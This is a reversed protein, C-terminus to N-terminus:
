VSEQRLFRILSSDTMSCRIPSPQVSLSFPAPCWRILRTQEFAILATIVQPLALGSAQSLADATSFHRARILRYVDRLTDDTLNLASVLSSLERNPSLALLEAHPCFARIADAQGRWLEGDALIVTTWQDKLPSGDWGCLVSSFGRADTVQRTAPDTGTDACLAMAQSCDWSLVLTGFPRRLRNQVASRPIVPLSAAATGGPLGSLFHLLGSLTVTEDPLPLGASSPRLASVQAEIRVRGGFDNIVPRYLVDLRSDGRDAAEGQNFAIAEVPTGRDKLSLKLHAGDTGVRRMSVAAADSLLFVPAPNGCGTPELMALLAMSADTWESFPMSLDYEQVPLFCSDDCNERILLNLRRRLEPILSVPITLGAAQEHGGFRIFLDSCLSLMRFINVGPISRCSGVAIDERISLVIAPFHYRECLRGATLGILGPNWDQGAAILVRDERFLTNERIQRFAEETIAREANQRRRNTEELRAAIEGAEAEDKTLLLQVGISADGLRGAANLRPALRFSLDESCLPPTIGAIEVLARLGPRASDAIRQLGERVILRNEGMLPVVDAVTALAAIDLRKEVGPIGQLAQCIKLAVGAGCLRRFPYHGLLPDMVAHADPLIEPPEHHDTVIVTLGLDRALAVEEVNTIGCDVTILLRYSAAIERVADSNLGYGELHRSPLRYDARAGEERLCETLISAACIGDADYDGYVLIPDGVSIADRLLRVTEAMGDLLFPDELDTLSPSLFRRAKEETDVGRSRLLSSLWGPLSALPTFDERYRPQFRLM